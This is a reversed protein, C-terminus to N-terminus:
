EGILCSVFISEILNNPKSTAQQSYKWKNARATQYRRRNEENDQHGMFKSTFVPCKCTQTGNAIAAIIHVADLCNYLADNNFQNRWFNRLGNLFYAMHINAWDIICMEIRRQRGPYEHMSPSGSSLHPLMQGFTRPTWRGENNTNIGVDLTGNWKNQM